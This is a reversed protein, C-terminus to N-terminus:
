SAPQTMSVTDASLVGNMMDLLSGGQNQQYSQTAKHHGGHHHHGHGGQGGQAGQAGQAGQQPQLASLDGTAAAKQFNDALQNLRDAQTGTAQGADAKLKSAIDGLVQKAQAPDSQELSQLKSLFQAPGSLSAGGGCADTGSAPAASSSSPTTAQVSSVPSSSTVTSIGSINM